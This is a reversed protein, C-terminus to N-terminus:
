PSCRYSRTLPDGISAVQARVGYSGIQLGSQSGGGEGFAHLPKSGASNSWSRKIAFHSDSSLPCRSPATFCCGLLSRGFDSCPQKEPAISAIRRKSTCATPGVAAAHSSSGTSSSPIEACPCFPTVNLACPELPLPKLFSFHSCGSVRSHHVHPAAPCNQAPSNTCNPLAAALVGRFPALDLAIVKHM